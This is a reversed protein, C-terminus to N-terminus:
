SRKSMAYGRSWDLEDFFMAFAFYAVNDPNKRALDPRHTALNRAHVLGYAKTARFATEVGDNMPNGNIDVAQNDIAGKLLHLMEHLFIVSLTEKANGLPDEVTGIGRNLLKQAIEDKNVDKKRWRSRSKIQTRLNNATPLTQTSDLALPCFFIANVNRLTLAMDDDRSNCLPRTGSEGPPPEESYRLREPLDPSYWVGGQGECNPHTEEIKRGQADGPDIEGNKIFRYTEDTCVLLKGRSSSASQCFDREIDRFFDEVAQSHEHKLRGVDVNAVGADGQQNFPIEGFFAIYTDLIRRWEIYDDSSKKKGEPAAPGIGRTNIATAELWSLDANAKRAMLCAEEWSGQLAQLDNGACNGTNRGGNGGVINWTPLLANEKGQEPVATIQSTQLAFIFLSVMCRRASLLM